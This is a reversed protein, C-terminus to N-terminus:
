NCQQKYVEIFNKKYNKKDDEDMYYEIVALKHNLDEWYAILKGDPKTIIKDFAITRFAYVNSDNVVFQVNSKKLADCEIKHMEILLPM